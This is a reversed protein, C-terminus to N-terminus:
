KGSAVYATQKSHQLNELLVDALHGTPLAPQWSWCTMHSEDEKVNTLSLPWLFHTLM